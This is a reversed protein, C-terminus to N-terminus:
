EDETELAALKARLRKVTREEAKLTKKLAAIQKNREGIEARLRDIESEPEPAPLRQTASQNTRVLAAVRSNARANAAQAPRPRDNAPPPLAELTKTISPGLDSELRIGAGIRMYRQADREGIGASKLYDLWGGHQIRSKRENLLKGLSWASIVASRECKRQQEALREHDRLANGIMTVRDRIRQDLEHDALPALGAQTVAAKPSPM